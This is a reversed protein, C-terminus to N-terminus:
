QGTLTATRSEIFRTLAQRSTFMERGLRIAELKVGGVGCHIWRHMTAKDPRKGVTAYLESRAESLAIVDETLIRQVATPAASKM